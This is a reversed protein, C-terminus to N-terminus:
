RATANSKNEKMEKLMANRANAEGTALIKTYELVKDKSEKSLSGYLVEINEITNM